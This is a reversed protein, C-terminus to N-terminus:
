MGRLKNLDIGYQWKAVRFLTNVPLGVVNFYCGRIGEIYPAFLGQMAYAGAKDDAEGTALYHLIQKHTLSSVFVETRECATAVGDKHLLSIGTYVAHERGSLATLMKSAEARDRPKGLIQDDLAVVTDAAIILVKNLTEGRALILERVARGKREALERVYDAPNARTCTEDTDATLVEFPLGLNQLIERRRPSGSALVLKM